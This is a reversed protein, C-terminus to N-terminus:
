IILGTENKSVKLDSLKRTSVYQYPNTFYAEPQLANLQPQV